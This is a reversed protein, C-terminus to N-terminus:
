AIRGGATFVAVGQDFIVPDVLKKVSGAAHAVVRPGAGNAWISQDLHPTGWSTLVADADKSLAIVTEPSTDPAWTVAFRQEILERTLPDIVDAAREATM